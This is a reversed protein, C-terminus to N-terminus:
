PRTLSSSAPMAQDQDFTQMRGLTEGPHTMAGCLTSDVVCRGDGAMVRRPLHLPRMAKFALLSSMTCAFLCVFLVLRIFTSFHSHTKKTRWIKTRNKPKKENRQKPEFEIQKGAAQRGFFAEECQALTLGHRRLSAVYPPQPASYTIQTRRTFAACDGLGHPSDRRTLM